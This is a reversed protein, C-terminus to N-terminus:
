FKFSSSFEVMAKSVALHTHIVVLDGNTFTPNYKSALFSDWAAFKYSNIAKSVPCGPLMFIIHM